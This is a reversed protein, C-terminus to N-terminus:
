SELSEYTSNWGLGRTPSNAVLRRIGHGLRAAKYEDSDEGFKEMAQGSATEAGYYEKSARFLEDSLKKQQRVLADGQQRTIWGFYIGAAFAVTTIAIESARAHFNYKRQLWIVVFPCTAACFVLFPKKTARAMGEKGMYFGLVLSVLWVFGLVSNFPFRCENVTETNAFVIIDLQLM